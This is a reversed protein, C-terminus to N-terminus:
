RQAALPERDVWERSGISSIGYLHRRSRTSTSDEYAAAEAVFISRV